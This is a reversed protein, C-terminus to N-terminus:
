SVYSLYKNAINLYDFGTINHCVNPNEKFHELYQDFTANIPFNFRGTFNHYLQYKFLEQNLIYHNAQNDYGRDDYCIIHRDCMISEYVGRGVSVVIDAQNIAYALQTQNLPNHWKTNIKLNLNNRKCFKKIEAQANKGQSLCLVSNIVRVERTPKFVDTNVPNYIRDELEFHDKIEDTVAVHKDVGSFPQEIDIFKSHVTQIKFGEVNDVVDKTTSHNALILDYESDLQIIAGQKQMIKAMAGYNNSFIHVTHGLKKLAQFM